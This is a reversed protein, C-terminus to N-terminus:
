LPASAGRKKNNECKYVNTGKMGGEVDIYM